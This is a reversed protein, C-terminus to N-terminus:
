ATSRLHEAAVVCAAGPGGVGQCLILRHGAKQRLYATEVPVAIPDGTHIQDKGSLIRATNEAADIIRGYGATDAPARRRFQIEGGNRRSAYRTLVPDATKGFAIAPEIGRDPLLDVLSNVACFRM